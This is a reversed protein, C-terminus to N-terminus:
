VIIQAQMSNVPPGSPCQPVYSQGPGPGYGGTPIPGQSPFPPPSPPVGSYGSPSPGPNLGRLLDAKNGVRFQSVQDLYASASVGGGGGGGGGSYGGGGGAKAGGGGYGVAGAYQALALPGPIVAGKQKLDVLETWVADTEKKFRATQLEIREKMSLLRTWIMPVAFGCLMVASVSIGIAIMHLVWTSLLASFKELFELFFILLNKKRESIKRRKQRMEIEPRTEIGTPVEPSKEQLGSAVLGLKNAFFRFKNSKSDM